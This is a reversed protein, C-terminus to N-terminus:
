LTKAAPEMGPRLETDLIRMEYVQPLVFPKADTDFYGVVEGQQVAQWLEVRKGLALLQVRLYGTMPDTGTDNEM